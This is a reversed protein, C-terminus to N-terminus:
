QAYLSMVPQPQKGSSAQAAELEALTKKRRPEAAQQQQGNEEAIKARAALKPMVAASRFTAPRLIM